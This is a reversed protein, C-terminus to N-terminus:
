HAALYKAAPDDRFADPLPSHASLPTELVGDRWLGLTVHRDDTLRGLGHPVGEIITGVYLMGNPWEIEGIGCPVGDVFNCILRMGDSNVVTGEGNPLGNQFNGAYIRGDESALKGEGSCSGDRWEGVYKSGDPLMAVGHGHPLGHSWNGEYIIGERAFLGNGHPLDCQWQGEYATEGNQMKGPGERKGEFIWGLYESGNPYAVCEWNAAPAANMVQSNMSRLEGTELSQLLSQQTVLEHTRSKITSSRSVTSTVTPVPTPEKRKPKWRTCLNSFIGM